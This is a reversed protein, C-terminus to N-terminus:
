HSALINQAYVIRQGEMCLGCREFRNQFIQVVEILSNSAKISDRVGAYGGNLEEMLFDLQTYINNPYPKSYLKDRRSGVWQALGDGTTNFHHEQMLNGMIGAVQVKTFGQAILYDWTITENESPTTYQGKIGVLEVQKQPQITALSAIEQRSVEQGDQVIIEYTVNRSGKVGATQIERYSVERDANEIKEVEFDVAEEVTITQKGERWVRVALGNTLATGLDLSVRDDEGLKIGKETLMEGVTEGHTRVTATKGYLTFIFPIARDIILQLGAGDSIINDTRDLTTTDENYLKIGASQAIQLATQYPTIIKTRTNGDVIIVPRARYINVQYDSAVLEETVAPEVADYSDITISAEKLADGITTAQSLIVKETGRDHITILRGSQTGGVSDAHTVSSTIIIIIMMIFLVAVVLAGFPTASKRILSNM